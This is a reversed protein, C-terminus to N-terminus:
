GNKHSFCLSVLAIKAEESADLDRVVSPTSLHPSPAVTPAPTSISAGSANALAARAEDREKILKACVRSAADHQYMAQALEQKYACWGRFTTTTLTLINAKQM